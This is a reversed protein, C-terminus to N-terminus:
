SINGLSQAQWHTKLDYHALFCHSGFNLAQIHGDNERGTLGKPPVQFGFDM